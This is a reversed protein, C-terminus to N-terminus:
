KRNHCIIEMKKRLLGILGEVTDDHKDSKKTGLGHYYNEKMEVTYIKGRYEANLQWTISETSPIVGLSFFTFLFTARGEEDIPKLEFRIPKKFKCSHFTTTILHLINQTEERTVYKKKYYLTVSGEKLEIENELSDHAHFLMKSILYEKNKMFIDSDIYKNVDPNKHHVKKLPQLSAYLGEWEGKTWHETFFNHSPHCKKCYNMVQLEESKKRIEKKSKAFFKMNKVIEHLGAKFVPTQVYAAVKPYDAHVQILPEVSNYLQMWQEDSWLHSMKIISDHCIYCKTPLQQMAKTKYAHFSLDRYLEHPHYDSSALYTLVGAENKHLAQLTTNHESTVKYWESKTYVHSLKFINNHCKLCKEDAFGAHLLHMFILITLYIIKKM